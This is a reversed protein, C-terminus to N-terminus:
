NKANWFTSRWAMLQLFSKMPRSFTHSFLLLNLLTLYKGSRFLETAMQFKKGYIYYKFFESSMGEKSLRVQISLRFIHCVVFVLIIAVLIRTSKEKRDQFEEKQRIEFRTNVERYFFSDYIHSRSCHHDM